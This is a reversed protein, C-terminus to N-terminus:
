QDPPIGEKDQVRMKADLITEYPEFSFTITKGTLTKVYIEGGCEEEDDDSDAAMENVQQIKEMKDKM